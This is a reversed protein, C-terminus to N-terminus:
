AADRAALVSQRFVNLADSRATLWADLAAAPAHPDLAMAVTQLMREEQAIFEDILFTGVDKGDLDAIVDKACEAEDLRRRIHFMCPRDETCQMCEAEESM